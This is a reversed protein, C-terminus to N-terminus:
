GFMHCADVKLLWQVFRLWGDVARVLSDLSLTKKTQEQAVAELFPPKVGLAAPPSTSLFSFYRLSM